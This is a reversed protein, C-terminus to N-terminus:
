IIFYLILLIYSTIPWHGIAACAARRPAHSLRLLPAIVFADRFYAAAASRTGATNLEVGILVFM